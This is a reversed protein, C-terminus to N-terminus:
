RHPALIPIGPHNPLLIFPYCLRLRVPFVSVVNPDNTTRCQMLTKLLSQLTVVRDSRIVLDFM